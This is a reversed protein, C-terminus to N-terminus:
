WHPQLNYLQLSLRRRPLAHPKGKIIKLETGLSGVKDLFKKDQLYISTSPTLFFIVAIAFIFMENLSMTDKITIISFVVVFFVSFIVQFSAFFLNMAKPSAQLTFHREGESYQITCDKLLVGDIFPGRLGWEWNPVTFVMTAHYNTTSPIKEIRLYYNPFRKKELAKIYGSFSIGEGLPFSKKYLIM